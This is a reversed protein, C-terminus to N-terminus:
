GGGEVASSGGSRDREELGRQNQGVLLWLISFGSVRDRDRVRQRESDERRKHQLHM